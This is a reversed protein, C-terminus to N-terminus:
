AQYMPRLWQSRTKYWDDPGVESDSGLKRLQNPKHLSTVPLELLCYSDLLTNLLSRLNM